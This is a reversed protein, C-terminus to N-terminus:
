PKHGSFYVMVFQICAGGLLLITLVWMLCRDADKVSQSKRRPKEHLKSARPLSIMRLRLVRYSMIVQRAINVIRQLECQFTSFHDTLVANSSSNEERDGERTGRDM